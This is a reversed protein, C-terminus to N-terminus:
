EKDFIDTDFTKQKGKGGKAPKDEKGASALEKWFIKMADKNEELYALYKDCAGAPIELGEVTFHGNGVNGKAGLRGNEVFLKLTYWFASVLLEDSTNCIFYHSLKAGTIIAEYEYYMQHAERKSDEERFITIKDEQKESDHRTGFFIQVLEYHSLEGDGRERCDLTANGVVMASRMMGKGIASAMLGLMPCMAVLKERFAIDEVGTSEDLMGGTMLIHYFRAYFPKEKSFGIRTLYDHMVLRRIEGKRGNGPLFPIDETQKTFLYSDPANRMVELLQDEITEIPNLLEKVEGSQADIAQAFLNNALTKQKPTMKEASKKYVSQADKIERFFAMIYLSEKRIIELFEDDEFLSALQLVTFKQEPADTKGDITRESYDRVGLKEAFRNLFQAINPVGTCSLLHSAVEEYISTRAKDDMMYWFKIVILAIAKQRLTNGAKGKPFKSKVEYPEKIRVKEKVCAKFFGTFGSAGSHTPALTIIKYDVKLM